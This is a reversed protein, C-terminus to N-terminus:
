QGKHVLQSCAHKMYGAESHSDSAMTLPHPWTMCRSTFSRSGPPSQLSSLAHWARQMGVFGSRMTAAWFALNSYAEMASVVCTKGHLQLGLGCWPWWINKSCYEDMNRDYCKIQMCAMCEHGLLCSPPDSRPARNRNISIRASQGASDLVTPMGWQFALAPIHQFHLALM